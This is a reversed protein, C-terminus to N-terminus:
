RSSFQAFFDIAKVLVEDAFFLRIKACQQSTSVQEKLFSIVWSPSLHPEILRVGEPNEFLILAFATLVHPRIRENQLFEFPLQCLQVVLSRQWGLTCLMRNRVSISAFNSVADLVKRLSLVSGSQSEFQMSKGNASLISTLIYMFRLCTNEDFDAAMKERVSPVASMCNWLELLCVCELQVHSIGTAWYLSVSSNMSSSMIGGSSSNQASGDCSVVVNDVRIKSYIESILLGAVEVSMKWSCDTCAVSLFASLVDSLVNLPVVARNFGIDVGSSGHVFRSFFELFGSNRLYSAASDACENLNSSKFHGSSEGVINAGERLVQALLFYGSILGAYDSSDIKSQIFCLYDVITFFSSSCLLSASLGPEVSCLERLLYFTKGTTKSNSSDSTAFRLLLELTNSRHFHASFLSRNAERQSTFFRHIENLLRDLNLRQQDSM